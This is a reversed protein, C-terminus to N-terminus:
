EKNALKRKSITKNFKEIRTGYNNNYKITCWELNDAKNNLPNEDIHNIFLYNLDVENKNESVLCKFNSKDVFHEAVLRHVFYKKLINNKSLFASLYLKGTQRVKLLKGKKFRKSKRSSNFDYVIRDLSRINGLNSVQYLGEYGKIDKWIENKM